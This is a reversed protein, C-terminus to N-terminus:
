WALMIGRGIKLTMTRTTPRAPHAPCDCEKFTRENQSLPPPEVVTVIFAAAVFNPTAM